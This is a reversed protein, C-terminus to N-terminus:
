EPPEHTLDGIWGRAAILVGGVGVLTLVVAIALNRESKRRYTRYDTPPRPPLTMVQNYCIM